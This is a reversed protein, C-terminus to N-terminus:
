LRRGGQSKGRSRKRGENGRPHPFPTSTSFATLTQSKWGQREWEESGRTKNLKDKQIASVSPDNGPATASSGRLETGTSPEAALRSGLFRQQRRETEPSSGLQAQAPRAQAAATCGRHNPHQCGRAKCHKTCSCNGSICHVLARAM